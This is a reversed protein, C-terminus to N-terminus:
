RNREGLSLMNAFIRFAGPVAEPLQRYWAYASYVYYGRGYQAVLMGGRQPSQGADHCELLPTYREDWTTWFKSGRQEVWNQFDSSTIANPQKFIRHTPELITVQADEESVEEPGRGMQYPFPGFNQDFEPTQYQVIMAGGQHVFELLRGNFKRLDERVAYARVGIVIVDWRSLDAQELDQENLMTPQLKLMALSAPVDDGSGMVYAIRPSSDVRVDVRRVTHIAEQFLNVRGLDLASITRFGETYTQGQHTVGARISVAENATFNDIPPQLQFRFLRQEGEKDMSFDHQKPQCIWGEPVRLHVQGSSGDPRDSRVM